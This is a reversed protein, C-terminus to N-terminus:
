REVQSEANLTVEALILEGFTPVGMSAREADTTTPDVPHLRWRSLAPDWVFQTGYRQPLGQAMLDKDIAEAAARLGLPEGLEAAKAGLSAALSWDEPNMSEALVVAARFHDRASVLAGSAALERARRARDATSEISEADPDAVWEDKQADQELEYWVQDIASRSTTCAGISLALLALIATRNTMAVAVMRM